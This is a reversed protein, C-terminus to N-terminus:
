WTIRQLGDVFDFLADKTLLPLNANKACAAIWMDNEPIKTGKEKLESKIKGYEYAENEGCRIIECISAFEKLIQLNDDSHASQIAGYAMEGIVIAPLLLEPILVIKKAAEVDGNIYAIVSNTDLIVSVM